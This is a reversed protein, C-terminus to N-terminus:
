RRAVWERSRIQRLFKSKLWRPDYDLKDRGGIGDGVREGKTGDGELEDDNCRLSDAAKVREGIAGM